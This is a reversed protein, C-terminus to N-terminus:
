RSRDAKKALADLYVFGSRRLKAREYLFDVTSALCANIGISAATALVGALPPVSAGATLAVAALGVTGGSTLSSKSFLKKASSGLLKYTADRQAARYEELKRTVDARLRNQSQTSLISQAADNAKEIV